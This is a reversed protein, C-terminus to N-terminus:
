EENTTLKETRLEEDLNREVNTAFRVKPKQRAVNRMLGLQESLQDNVRRIAEKLTM